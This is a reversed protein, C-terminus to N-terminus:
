RGPLPYHVTSLAEIRQMTSMGAGKVQRISASVGVRRQAQKISFCFFAHYYNTLERDIGEAGDASVAAARLCWPTREVIEL